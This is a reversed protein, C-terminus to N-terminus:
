KRFMQWCASPSPSAASCTSRRSRSRLAGVALTDVREPAVSGDSIKTSTRRSRCWRASRSSARFGRQHREDAAHAARAEREVRGHLRRLVGARVGHLARPVVAARLPRDAPLAARRRRVARRDEYRVDTRQGRRPGEAQAADRRRAERGCRPPAASLKPPPPPWTVEGKNIVTTGRLVEDQM